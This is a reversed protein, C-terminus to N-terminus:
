KEKKGKKYIEEKIKKGTSLDYYITKGHRLGDKISRVEKINDDESIYEFKNKDKIPEGTPEYRERVGEREICKYGGSQYERRLFKDKEYFEINKLNGSLFFHRREGNKQGNKYQTEREVNGNPYYVFVTGEPKNDVFTVLSELKGEPTYQKEEGQLLGKKFFREIKMKGNPYFHTEKGERKDDVWYSLESVNGNENFIKGEGQRLDNKVFFEGKLKGNPYFLTHKGERQGNICNVVSELNGDEYFHKIEGEIKGKKFFM